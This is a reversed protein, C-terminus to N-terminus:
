CRVHADRTRGRVSESRSVRFGDLAQVEPEHNLSGQGCLMMKAGILDLHFTVDSAKLLVNLSVFVAGIQLIAFHSITFWPTNPCSLAVRDGM